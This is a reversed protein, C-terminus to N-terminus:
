GQPSVGIANDLIAGPSKTAVYTRGTRLAAGVNRILMKPAAEAAFNGVIGFQITPAAKLVPHIYTTVFDSPAIKSLAM